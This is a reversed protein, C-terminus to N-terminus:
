YLLKLYKYMGIKELGLTADEVLDEMEIDIFVPCPENPVNIRRLETKGIKPSEENVFNWDQHKIQIRREIGWWGKTKSYYIM